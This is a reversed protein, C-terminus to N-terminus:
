ILGQAQMAAQVAPRAAVSAQSAQVHPYPSLDLGVIEAWRTITFLYADAGTFADGLLHRSRALRTEVFGYHRGLNALRDDRVESTAAPNFLPSYGRHIETALYSLMEQLRVREFSGNAPALASSPNLDALYQLIAANETLVEGDDLELAPVYGKPNVAYFDGGTDTTKTKLDVRVPDVPIGAESAVIHAALACSQPIYYLKM